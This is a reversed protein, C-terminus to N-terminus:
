ELIQLAPPWRREAPPFFGWFPRRGAGATPSRFRHAEHVTKRREQPWSYLQATRRGAASTRMWFPQMERVKKASQKGGASFLHGGAITFGTKRRSGRKEEPVAPQPTRFFQNKRWNEWHKNMTRFPLVPIWIPALGPSFRLILIIYRKIKRSGTIYAAFADLYRIQVM